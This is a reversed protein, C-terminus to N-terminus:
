SGTRGKQKKLYTYAAWVGVTAGFIMLMVSGFAWM